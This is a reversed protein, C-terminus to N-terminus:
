EIPGPDCNERAYKVWEEKPGPGTEIQTLFTQGVERDNWGIVEGTEADLYNDLSGDSIIRVKRTQGDFTIEREGTFSYDTPESLSADDIRVKETKGQRIDILKRRDEASLFPKGCQIPLHMGSYILSYKYKEEAALDDPVYIVIYDEGALVVTEVVESGDSDTWTVVSGVTESALPAKKQGCATAGWLIMGSLVFLSVYKNVSM